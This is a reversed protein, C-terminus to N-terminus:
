DQDAKRALSQRVLESCREKHEAFVAFCAERFCNLPKQKSRVFAIAVRTFCRVTVKSADIHM